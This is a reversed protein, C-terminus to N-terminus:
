DDGAAAQHQLRCFEIWGTFCFPSGPLLTQISVDTLKYTGESHELYKMSCLLTLMKHLGQKHLNTKDALEGLCLGRLGITEFIGSKVAAILTQGQIIPLLPDTLPNPIHQVQENKM